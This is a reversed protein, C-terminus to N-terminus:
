VASSCCHCNMNALARGYTLAHHLVRVWPPYGHMGQGLRTSSLKLTMMRNM